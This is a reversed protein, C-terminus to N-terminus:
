THTDVVVVDGVRGKLGMQFPSNEFGVSLEAADSVLWLLGCPVLLLLGALIM